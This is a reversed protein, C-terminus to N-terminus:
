IVRLCIRVALPLGEGKKSVWKWIPRKILLTAVIAIAIAMWTAITKGYPGLIEISAYLIIAIAFMTWAYRRTQKLVTLALALFILVALLSYLAETNM